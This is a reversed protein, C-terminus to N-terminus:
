PASSGTLLCCISTRLCIPVLANGILGHRRKELAGTHSRSHMGFEEKTFPTRRVIRDCGSKGVGRFTTPVGFTTAESTTVKQSTIPHSPDTWGQPMGMLVECWNPNVCHTLLKKSTTNTMKEFWVQTHLDGSCRKTLTPTGQINGARPTSWMNKRVTTVVGTGYKPDRLKGSESIMPSVVDNPLLEIRKVNIPCSPLGLKTSYVYGDVFAGARPFRTVNKLSVPSAGSMIHASADWLKNWIHLTKTRKSKRRRCLCWWRNRKHCAGMQSASLCMWRCDIKDKDLEELFMTYAEKGLIETVNEFVAFSAGTERVLRLTERFLISREGNFAIRPGCSSLDQCPFSSTIVEVQKKIEAGKLDRVDEFMQGQPLSGDSIRAELVARAFANLECYAVPQLLRRLSFSFMGMGSFLDLSNPRTSPNTLLTSLLSKIKPM